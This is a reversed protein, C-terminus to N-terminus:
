EFSETSSPPGESIRSTGPAPLPEEELEVEENEDKDKIEGETWVVCVPRCVLKSEWVEVVEM